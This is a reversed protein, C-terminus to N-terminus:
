EANKLAARLGLVIFGWLEIQQDTRISDYMTGWLELHLGHDLDEILNTFNAIKMRQADTKVLKHNKM